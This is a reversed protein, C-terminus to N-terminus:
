KIKEKILETLERHQDALDKIAAEIGASRRYGISVPPPRESEFYRALAVVIVSSMTRGEREAVEALRKRMGDPLRLLFQESGRDTKKSIAKKVM